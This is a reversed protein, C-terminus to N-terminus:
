RRVLVWTGVVPELARVRYSFTGEARRPSLVEGEFEVLYPDPEATTKNLRIRSRGMSVVIVLRQNNISRTDIVLDAGLASVTAVVATEKGTGPVAWKIVYVGTVLKEARAIRGLFACGTACALALICALVGGPKMMM